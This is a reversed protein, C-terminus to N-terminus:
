SSVSEHRMIPIQVSLANGFHAFNQNSFAHAEPVPAARHCYLRVFFAFEFTGAVGWTYSTCPRDHVLIVPRATAKKAVFQKNNPAHCMFNTIAFDHIFTKNHVRESIAPNLKEAFIKQGVGCGM